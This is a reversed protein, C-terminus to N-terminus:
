GLASHNQCKRSPVTNGVQYQPICGQLMINSVSIATTSTSFKLPPKLKVFIGALSSSWSFFLWWCSKSDNKKCVAVLKGKLVAGLGVCASVM